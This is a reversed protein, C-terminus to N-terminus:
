LRRSAARRTATPASTSPLTAPDVAFAAAGAEAPLKDLAAKIIPVFAERKMMGALTMAAQLGQRTVKGALAAKVLAEQNM